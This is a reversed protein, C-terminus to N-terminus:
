SSYLSAGAHHLTTSIAHPGHCQTLNTAQDFFHAAAAHLLVVAFAAFCKLADVNANVNGALATSRQSHSSQSVYHATEM